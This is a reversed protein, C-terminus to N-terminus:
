SDIFIFHDTIAKLTGSAGVPGVSILRVKGQFSSPIQYIKLETLHFGKEITFPSSAGLVNRDLMLAVNFESLVTFEDDNINYSVLYYKSDSDKKIVFYLVNNTDDLAIGYLNEDDAITYTAESLTDTSFTIEPTSNDYIIVRIKDLPYNQIHYYKTGSIIGFYRDVTM